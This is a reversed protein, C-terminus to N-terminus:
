AEEPEPQGPFPVVKRKDRLNKFDLKRALKSLDAQKAGSRDELPASISNRKLAMEVARVIALSDIFEGSPTWLATGEEQMVRIAQLQDRLIALELSHIEELLAPYDTGTGEAM